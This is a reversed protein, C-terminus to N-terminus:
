KNQRLGPQKTLLSVDVIKEKAWMKDGTMQKSVFDKLRTERCLL